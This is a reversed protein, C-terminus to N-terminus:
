MIPLAFVYLAWARILSISLIVMVASAILHPGFPMQSNLHTRKRILKPLVALTALLNAIFLIFGAIIWHGSLLSLAVCLKVDGLGIARGASFLWLAAYLAALPLFSRLIDLWSFEGALAFHGVVAYIAALIILPYVIVNPLIHHRQDYVALVAFLTLVMFWIVLMASRGFDQFLFLDDLPIALNAAFAVTSLTFLAGLTLESLLPFWGIPKKCYRCKGRLCCWSIIPILDFAALQKHCHDCESRGKVWDRKTELRAVVCAAFSGAFTGLIFVVALRMVIEVVSM